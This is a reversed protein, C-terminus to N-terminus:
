KCTTTVYSGDHKYPGQYYNTRCTTPPTPYTETARYTEKPTTYDGVARVPQSDSIKILFFVAAILLLLKGLNSM